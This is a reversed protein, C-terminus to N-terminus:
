RSPRMSSRHQHSPSQSRSLAKRGTRPRGGPQEHRGGLRAASRPAQREPGTQLARSRDGMKSAWSREFRSPSDCFARSRGKPTGENGAQDEDGCREIQEDVRDDAQVDDPSGPGSRMAPVCFAHFRSSAPAEFNTCPRTSFRCSSVFCHDVFGLRPSTIAASSSSASSMSVGILRSYAGRRRSRRRGVRPSRRGSNPETVLDGFRAILVGSVPGDVSTGGPQAECRGGPVVEGEISQLGPEPHRAFPKLAGAASLKM